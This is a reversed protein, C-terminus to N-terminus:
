LTTVPEARFPACVQSLTAPALGMMQMAGADQEQHLRGNWARCVTLFSAQQLCRIITRLSGFTINEVKGAAVLAPLNSEAAFCM